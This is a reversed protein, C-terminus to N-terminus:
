RRPRLYPPVLREELSVLIQIIDADCDTESDTELDQALYRSLPNIEVVKLLLDLNKPLSTAETAPKKDPDFMKTEDFPVDRTAVAEKRKSDDKSRKM